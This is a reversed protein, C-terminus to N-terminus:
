LWKPTHLGDRGNEGASCDPTSPPSQNFPNWNEEKILAPSSYCASGSVLGRSLVALHQPFVPLSFSPCPPYLIHSLSFSLCPLSSTHSSETPAALSLFGAIGGSITQGDRPSKDSQSCFTWFVSSSHSLFQTDSDDAVQSRHVCAPVCADLTPVCVWVWLPSTLVPQLKRKGCEASNTSNNLM